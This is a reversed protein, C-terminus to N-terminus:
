PPAPVVESSVLFLQRMGAWEATTRWGPRATSASSGARPPSRILSSSSVRMSVSALNRFPYPPLSNMRVAVKAAVCGRARAGMLDVLRQRRRGGVGTRALSARTQAASGEVLRVVRQAPDGGVGITRALNEGVDPSDEAGALRASQRDVYAADHQVHEGVQGLVRAVM